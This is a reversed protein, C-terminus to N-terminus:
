REAAWNENLDDCLPNARRLCQKLLRFLKILLQFLQFLNAWIVISNNGLYSMYISVKIKSRSLLHMVCNLIQFVLLFAKMLDTASVSHKQFRKNKFLNAKEKLPKIPTSGDGTRLTKLKERCIDIKAKLQVRYATKSQWTLVQWFAHNTKFQNLVVKEQKNRILKDNFSTKNRWVAISIM